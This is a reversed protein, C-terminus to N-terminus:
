KWKVIKPAITELDLENKFLIESAKIELDYKERNSLKVTEFEEAGKNEPTADEPHSAIYILQKFYDFANIGADATIQWLGSMETAINGYVKNMVTEDFWKTM